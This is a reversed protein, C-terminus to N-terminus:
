LRESFFAIENENDQNVVLTLMSCCDISDDNINNGEFTYNIIDYMAMGMPQAKHFVGKGPFVILDKIDDRTRSIREEKNENNWFSEITYELWNNKAMEEKIKEELLDIDTANQEFCIRDVKHLAMRECMGPVAIKASRKKYYGDILYWLKNKSEKFILCAYNDKGKRAPDIIAITRCDNKRIEEPLEFWQQLRVYAFALAESPVPEQQTMAFFEEANRRYDKLYENKPYKEPFSSYCKDLGLSFDILGPVSVSVSKKDASIGVFKSWAFVKQTKLDVEWDENNALDRKIWSLFDETHYATGTFWRLVTNVNYCRRSWQSTYKNIDSQHARLNHKENSQTVDDYFQYNYRAGDLSTAKNVIYFSRGVKSEKLTFAGDGSKCEKFMEDTGNYKGFEPFVKGFKQSKLMNVVGSFIPQIVSPNGVVKMIDANINYGFIYCIIVCDSKSNHSVFGNAIFNHTEDVEIDIMSIENEDYNISVIKDYYFDKYIIHDLLHNKENFKEVIEKKFTKNRAWQKNNEKKFEKCNKLIEKPYNTRNCYCKVKRNKIFNYRQELSEQKHYFYCNNYLLEIYEDPIELRWSDFFKNNLKVKKYSKKSYIGCTSLLYQIDDILLENALSIGVLDGSKFNPIYGDTALMYSIFDFKQTIPMEFFKKDLRKNHSNCNFIEYKKLLNEVKKDKKYFWYSSAKSEKKQTKKYIIGLKECCQLFVNKFENDEQTFSFLNETCSGEFIMASIFLLENNDLKNKGNIKCLQSYLYDNCTLDKAKKYGNQTFMKHEPSIIIKKGSQTKIIIQKKKTNWKNIVKKEVLNNDKMSYILDGIKVDKIKIRGDKTHVYTNEDVCKGFGTPCQKILNSYEHNLIMAQSYYFISGMTSNLTYKWVKNDEPDDTELYMALHILSRYSAIAMLDDQLDLWKNYNAWDSELMMKRSIKNSFSKIVNNACPLLKGIVYKCYKRRLKETDDDTEKNLVKHLQIYIFDKFNSIFEYLEKINDSDKFKNDYMWSLADFAQLFEKNDQILM